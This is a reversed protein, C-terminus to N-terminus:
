GIMFTADCEPVPTTDTLLRSTQEEGLASKRM